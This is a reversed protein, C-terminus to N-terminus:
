NSKLMDLEKKLARNAQEIFQRNQQIDCCVSKRQQLETRTNKLQTALAAAARNKEQLQTELLQQIANRHTAECETKIETADDDKAQLKTELEKISLGRCQIVADRHLLELHVNTLQTKLEVAADDKAQLKTELQKM